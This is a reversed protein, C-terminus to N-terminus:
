MVEGINEWAGCVLHVVMVMSSPDCVTSFKNIYDNEIKGLTRDQGLSQLVFSSLTSM